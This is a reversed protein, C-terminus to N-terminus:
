EGMEYKTVLFKTLDVSTNFQETHMLGSKAGKKGIYDMVTFPMPIVKYGNKNPFVLNNQENVDAIAIARTRQKYALFAFVKEENFKTVDTPINEEAYEYIRRDPVIDGYSDTFFERRNFIVFDKYNNTLINIGAISAQAMIIADGVPASSEKMAGEIIYKRALYVVNRSFEAKDIPEYYVCYKSMFEKENISMGHTNLERFVGPMIVFKYKGSEALLKLKFMTEVYKAQPGRRNSYFDKVDMHSLDIFINTDIAVLKCNEDVKEESFDLM